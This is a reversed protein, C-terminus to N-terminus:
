TQTLYRSSSTFTAVVRKTNTTLMMMAGIIRKIQELKDLKEKIKDKNLFMTEIKPVDKGCWYCEYGVSLHKEKKQTLRRHVDKNYFTIRYEGPADYTIIYTASGIDNEQLVVEGLSDYAILDFKCPRFDKTMCNLSLLGKTKGTVM